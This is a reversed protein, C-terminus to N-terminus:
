PTGGTSTSATARTRRDEVGRAGGELPARHAAEADRHGEELEPQARQRHGLLPRPLRRLHRAHRVLREPLLDRDRVPGRRQVARGLAAEPLRQHGQLEPRASGVAAQVAPGRDDSLQARERVQGEHRAQRGEHLGVAQQLLDRRPVVQRGRGPSRRRRERRLAPRDAEADHQLPRGRRRADRPVNRRARLRAARPARGGRAGRRASLAAPAQAALAQSPPEPRAGGPRPAEGEGPRRRAAAAALAEARAAAAPGDSGDVAPERPRRQAGTADRAQVTFLHDGDALGSYEAPSTCSAPASGDLSCRFTAGRENAEFTFTASTQDTTGSPGSTITVQIGPSADATVAPLALIVVLLVLLVM